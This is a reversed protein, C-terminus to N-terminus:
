QPEDPASAGAADHVAQEVVSRLNDSWGPGYARWPSDEYVTVGESPHAQKFASICANFAAASGDFTQQSKWRLVYVPVPAPDAAMSVDYRVSNGFLSSDACGADGSVQDTITAGRRVLGAVLDGIEGATPSPATFVGCGTLLLAVVAFAALRRPM